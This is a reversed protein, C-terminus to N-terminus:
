VRPAHLGAVSIIRNPSLLSVTGEPPDAAGYEAAFSLNL